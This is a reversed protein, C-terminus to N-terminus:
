PAGKKHSKRDRLLQACFADIKDAGGLAAALRQYATSNTALGGHSYANCLGQIGPPLDTPTTTANPAATATASPPLSTAAGGSAPNTTAATVPDAQPGGTADPGKLPNVDANLPSTPNPTPSIGPARSTTSSTTGNGRNLFTHIAGAYAVTGGLGIGLVGVIAAVARKISRQQASQTDSSAGPATPLASSNRFAALADDQGRLEAATPPSTLVSLLEALAPTDPAELNLGDLDRM